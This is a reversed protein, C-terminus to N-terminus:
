AKLTAMIGSELSYNVSWGLQEIRETNACSYMVENARMVVAGFELSSTSRSCRHITEVLERVTPAYGTGLSITEFTELENIKSVILKYASIVDGIYIFDRQQKGATLQLANNAICENMVHTTFKSEDDGPGYFHELAINIFKLPKLDQFAALKIFTNKTLAYPSVDDPLSTGTHIFAQVQHTKALALLYNPYDVNAQILASISEQRRGYLAVTNIVIDPKHQSFIADLHAENDATVIDVSLNALRNTSSTTRVVAIVTNDASFARVLQSGLYGSAGTILIKM